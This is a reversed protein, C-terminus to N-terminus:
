AAGASIQGRGGSSRPEQPREVDLLHLQLEAAAAGGLHQVERVVVHAM